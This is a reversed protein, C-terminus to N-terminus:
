KSLYGSLKKVEVFDKRDLAKDILKKIEFDSMSSYDEGDDTEIDNSSNRNTPANDGREYEDLQSRYEKFEYIIEDITNDVWKRSKLSDQLMGKFIEIFENAPLEVMRGFVYEFGNPVEQIKDNRTVFKLIDKKIYKGYKLDEFEDNLSDTQSLIREATQPNEPIGGGGLVEYIGKVAEHLLVVFDIARAKLIISGEIDPVEVDDLDDTELDDPNMKEKDEEFEWQPDSYGSMGQQIIEGPNDHHIQWEMFEQTKILKDMASLLGQSINEIDDKYMHILRHTNKSSGQIINNIIKRKAVEDEDTSDDVIENNGEIDGSDKESEQSQSQPKEKPESPKVDMKNKTDDGMMERFDIIKFDLEMNLAEIINGYEKLIIDEALKTLEDEKGRQLRQVNQILQGFDGQPGDESKARKEIDELYDKDLGKTKWIDAELFRSYNKIKM